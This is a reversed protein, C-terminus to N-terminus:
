LRKESINLLKFVRLATMYESTPQHPYCLIKKDKFMETISNTVDGGHKNSDEIGKWFYVYKIGAMVIEKACNDCPFLTVYISTNDLPIGNKAAHMIANHEAHFAKCLYQSQDEMSEEMISKGINTTGNQLAHLIVHDPYKALLAEQFERKEKRRVCDGLKTCEELGPGAGNYGTSVVVGSNENTNSRVIVAGVQRSLCSSRSAADQAMMMFYSHWDSRLVRIVPQINRDSINYKTVFYDEEKRFRQMRQELSEGDM